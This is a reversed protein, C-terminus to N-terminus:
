TTLSTTKSTTLSTLSAALPKQNANLPPSAPRKLLLQLDERFNAHVTRRYRLNRTPMVDGALVKVLPAPLHPPSAPTCLFLFRRM